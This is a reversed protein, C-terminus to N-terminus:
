AEGRLTLSEILADEGIQLLYTRFIARQEATFTDDPATTFLEEIVDTLANGAGFFHQHFSDIFDPDSEIVDILHDTATPWDAERIAIRALGTKQFGGAEANAQSDELALMFNDRASAYDGEIFQATALNNRAHPHDVDLTLVQEFRAIAPGTEGNLLRAWGLNNLVSTDDPLQELTRDLYAIATDLQHRDLHVQSIGFLADSDDEDLELASLYLDYAENLQDQGALHDALATLHNINDADGAVALRFEQEALDNAGIIQYVYGRERRLFDSDPEVSLAETVYSLARAHDQAEYHIQHALWLPEWHRAAKLYQQVDILALDNDDILWYRYARAYLLSDNDPMLELGRSYAEIAPALEDLETLSKGLYYFIAPEDHSQSLDELLAKAESWAEDEVMTTIQEMQELVATQDTFAFHADCRVLRRIENNDFRHEGLAREVERVFPNDQDGSGLVGHAQRDESVEFWIDQRDSIGRVLSWPPYRLALDRESLVRHGSADRCDLTISPKATAPVPLVAAPLLVIFLLRLAPLTTLRNM